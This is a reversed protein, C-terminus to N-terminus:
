EASKDVKFVVTENKNLIQVHLAPSTRSAQPRLKALHQISVLLFAIALNSAAHPVYALGSISQM